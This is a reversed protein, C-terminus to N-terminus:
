RADRGRPLAAARAARESVTSAPTTPSRGWASRPACSAAGAGRAGARTGAYVIAPLADARACRRPSCRRAERAAGAPRGRVRPQAPRLRHGGAGARAAAAARVIDRRWGRRRRRRRPSSRAAGLTRAADALRFYDPRFDHGWQSVCHAEDVVFLGVGRRACASSSAPRRRVSPRWTCCGCSAPPRASSRTARERRRGAPRQRARRPRGRGRAAAGRGPGADAGGAALRRGDPRRAAAGAAPLLAVQGLRDADRRARRPGGARGAGGGGPRPPLRRLRVARSARGSTWAPCLSRLAPVPRSRVRRATRPTRTVRQM